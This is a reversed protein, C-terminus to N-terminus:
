KKREKNKTNRSCFIIHGNLLSYEAAKCHGLIKKCNKSKFYKIMIKRTLNREYDGFVSAHEFDVIWPKNNLILFARNSHILEANQTNRIYILRPLKIRKNLLYITKKILEYKPNSYIGVQNYVELNMNSIYNVDKPPYKLFTEFVPHPGAFLYVKM